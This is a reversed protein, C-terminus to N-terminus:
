ISYLLFSVLIVIQSVNDHKTIVKGLLDRWLAVTRRWQGKTQQPVLAAVPPLSPNLRGTGCWTPARFGDLCLSVPAGSATMWAKHSMSLLNDSRIMYYMKNIKPNNMFASKRKAEKRNNADRQQRRSKWHTIASANPCFMGYRAALEWSTRLQFSIKPASHNLKEKLTQIVSKHVFLDSPFCM